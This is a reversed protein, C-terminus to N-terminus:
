KRNKKVRKKSTHYPLGLMKCKYMLGSETRGPMKEVLESLTLKDSYKKLLTLEEKTYVDQRGRVFGLIQMHTKVATETRKLNAAIQSVSMNINFMNQLARDEADTWEYTQRSLDRFRDNDIKKKLWDPMYYFFDLVVKSGDLTDQIPELFKFLEKLDIVYKRRKSGGRHKKLGNKLWRYVVDDSVGLGYAVDQVSLYMHNYERGGLQMKVAKQQLAPWTRNFMKVLQANTITDDLWMEAFEDEERKVWRRGKTHPLVDMRKMKSRISNESRNLTAAIEEIKLGSAALETLKKKEDETWVTGEFM